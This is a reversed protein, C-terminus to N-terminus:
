ENIILVYNPMKTLRPILSKVFEGNIKLYGERWNKLQNDFQTVQTIEPVIEAREIRSDSWERGFSNNEHFIAVDRIIDSLKCLWIFADIVARKTKVDVYKPFMVELGFDSVEVLPWTSKAEQIRYNRRLAFSILRDRMLCCWWVIRRRSSTGEQKIDWLKIARAHNFARDVWYSNVKYEADFPSWYTLLLAVKCLILQDPTFNM